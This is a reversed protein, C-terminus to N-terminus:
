NTHKPVYWLSNDTPNVVLYGDRLVRNVAANAAKAIPGGFGPLTSTEPSRTATGEIMAKITWPDAHLVRFRFPGRPTQGIAPAVCCVVAVGCLTAKILRKMDDLVHRM